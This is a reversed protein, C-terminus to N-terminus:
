RAAVEPLLRLALGAGYMALAGGVAHAAEIRRVEGLLARLHVWEHPAVLRELTRACLRLHRHEDALVTFFLPYLPHAPGITECHRHMIRVAMQEACLATAYAPVLAGHTFHGAHQDALQRWRALKRRSMGHPTGPTIQCTGHAHLAAAFLATHRQEEALHQALQRQAWGPPAVQLQQRLIGQSAEEGDHYLQLLLREGRRSAHLQRIAGRKIRDVLRERLASMGRAVPPAMADIRPPPSPPLAAMRHPLSM